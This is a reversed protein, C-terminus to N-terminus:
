IHRSFSLFSLSLPLSSFSLFSSLFFPLTFSNSILSTLFFSLSPLLISYLIWTVGYVVFWVFSSLLCRSDVCDVVGWLFLGCWMVCLFPPLSPRCFLDPTCMCVLGCNDTLPWVVYVCLCAVSGCLDVGGCVVLVGHGPYGRGLFSWSGSDHAQVGKPLVVSARRPTLRQVGQKQIRRHLHLHHFAFTMYIDPFTSTIVVHIGKPPRYICALLNLDSNDSAKAEWM